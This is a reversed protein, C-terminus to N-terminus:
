TRCAGLYQIKVIVAAAGQMKERRIDVALQDLDDNVKDIIESVVDVVRTTIDDVENKELTKLVALCNFLRHRSNHIKAAIDDAHM